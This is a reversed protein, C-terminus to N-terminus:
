LWRLLAQYLLIPEVPKAIHEKMGTELCKERDDSFVNATMALIPTERNQGDKKILITADIGNMEPMQMDMLILAYRNERALKVAELGTSALDVILGLEELLLRSIEQNIPEDEALLVKKGQHQSRLQEILADESAMSAMLTAESTKRLTLEFWFTSGQGAQSNVGIRGGMLEVLEKSISLGLGSGGYKRSISSDAQEFSRFLKRQQEEDIGIGTDTIEFRLHVTADDNSLSKITLTVSGVETFKVANMALNTIVQSLRLPDGLLCQNTLEPSISTELKIGKASAKYGLISILSEVIPLLKFVTQEIVLQRAEIKSIDLIDNIVSMLHEAAINAKRLQDLAEHGLIQNKALRIMGIIGSLPTRLEHSMKALFISKATSAAQAVDRAEELSNNAEQLAMTREAVLAELHAANQHALKEAKHKTNLYLVSAGLALILMDGAMACLLFIWFREAELRALVPAPRPVYVTLGHDAIAHSGLVIPTPDSGIRLVHPLESGKWVNLPLPEFQTRQYFQEKEQQTLNGITSDPLSRYLRNAQGTLVIIQQADSLFGDVDTLWQSFNSIDRKIAIAGIFRGDNFVPHSYFLGPVKTVRGVAYQQGPHGAQAEQFYQRFAYNTGVFSQPTHANSAAICDGDARILWVVDVKLNNALLKLFQNIASLGPDATWLRKRTATDAHDLPRAEEKLVANKILENRSLTAPIGRLMDLTEDIHRAIFIAQQTSLTAESQYKNAQESEIYASSVFWSVLTWGCLMVWFVNRQLRDLKVTTRVFIPATLTLIILLTTIILVVSALFSPTLTPVIAAEGDRVFYAAAMATYHMGSVAAGMIIASLVHGGRHLRGEKSSFRFKVWLALIALLVAIVLSLAFLYASYVIMGNMRYAAMGTYHMAGIGIGLLAGGFVLTNISIDRRSIIHVTLASALIGPLMSLGTMLPDYTTSCPLSFALMGTFHMAWTGSGMCLGGLAIWYGRYRPHNAQSIDQAIILVAYSALIAIGISLCVLFPDHHGVYLLSSEPPTLSLPLLDFWTNNLPVKSNM